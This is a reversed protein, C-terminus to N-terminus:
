VELSTFAVNSYFAQTPQVVNTFFLNSPFVYNPASGTVDLPSLTAGRFVLRRSM